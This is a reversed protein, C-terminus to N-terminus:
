RIKLALAKTGRAGYHKVYNWNLLKNYSLSPRLILKGGTPDCLSIM